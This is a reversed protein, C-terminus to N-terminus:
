ETGVHVSEVPLDVPRHTLPRRPKLTGMPHPRVTSDSRLKIVRHMGPAQLHRHLEITCSQSEDSLDKLRGNPAQTIIGPTVCVYPLYLLRLILLDLPHRARMVAEVGLNVSRKIEERHSM